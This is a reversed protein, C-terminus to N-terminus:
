RSYVNGREDFHRRQVSAKRGAMTGEVSSKTHPVVDMM